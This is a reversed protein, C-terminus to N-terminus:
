VERALSTYLRTISRLSYITVLGSAVAKFSSLSYLKLFSFNGLVERFKVIVYPFYALISRV